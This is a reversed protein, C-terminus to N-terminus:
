LNLKHFIELLKEAQKKPHCLKLGMTRCNEAIIKYEAENLELLYKIGLALDNSDKLKARYGTKGTIVLDLAVGIEFSVVPTGSMISQNVMMPGSDEISPSIFVDVAQFVRAMQKHSLYGLFTHKFHLTNEFEKSSNGAIVLQINKSETETLMNNLIKLAEILEKYGKRKDNVTVAGFLIIKKEVPINIKNRVELKNAPRFLEDDIGLLVKYKQKDKFLSSEQLQRFQWETGAIPIINTNDIIKKKFQWNLYSQDQPNTSYLGPCNGCKNTYGKCDWAYHCGGTIPAMDMMYLLIPSKTLKNLEYLNISNIFNPMFLVIIVDPTFSFKNMIRQTSYFTKTQDLQHIYYESNINVIKKKTLRNIIKKVKQYFNKYCTDFFSDISIVDNDRYNDWEKVILIVNCSSNRRFNNLLDKAVVGAKKFPHSSSLIVINM